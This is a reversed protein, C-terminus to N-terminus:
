KKTRTMNIEMMKYEKGTKPDPCYMEAKQTNEDIVTIVERFTCEKGPRNIDPVKGSLSLTKSSEDWKGRLNMIGTGWNDIWSSTFEKTANDYGTLGRGEFPMGMMEGKHTSTQYKGNLIMTNVATGSSKRPTAGEYDWMTTEGKWTGNWSALMQHMPGPTAYIKMNKMMTSDDVAVWAEEAKAKSATDGSATESATKDEPKTESNCAFLFAAACVLLTIRKM